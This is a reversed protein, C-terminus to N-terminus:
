LLLLHTESFIKGTLRLTVLFPFDRPKFLSYM